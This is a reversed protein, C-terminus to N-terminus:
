DTAKRTRKVLVAGSVLLLCVGILGLGIALAHSNSDDPGTGTVPAIIALPRAAPVLLPPAIVTPLAAMTPLAATTATAAPTATAAVGHVDVTLTDCVEVSDDSVVCATNDIEDGDSAGSTLKVTMEVEAEDGPELGDLTGETVDWTVDGSADCGEAAAIAVDSNAEIVDTAICDTDSPITESIVVNGCDATGQNEVHITYVIEGGEGVENDDSDKSITLDCAPTATPGPTNTPAPTNTVTPTATQAHATPGMAWSTIAVLVLALGAALPLALYRSTRKKM